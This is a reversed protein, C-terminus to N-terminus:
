SNNAALVAQKTKFSSTFLFFSRIIIVLTLKKCFNKQTLWNIPAFATACSPKQSYFRLTLLMDKCGFRRPPSGGAGRFADRRSRLDVLKVRAFSQAYSFSM